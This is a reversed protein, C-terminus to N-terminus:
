LHSSNLRTSKRDIETIDYRAGLEELFPVGLVNRKHGPMHMAAADSASYKQLLRFLSENENM